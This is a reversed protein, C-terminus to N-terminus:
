WAFPDEPFAVDLLIARFDSRSRLSSLAVETAMASADRYGASAARRLLDMAKAAEAEGDGPSRGTGEREFAAALAAHCCALEYL